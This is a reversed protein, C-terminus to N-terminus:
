TQSRKKAAGTRAAATLADAEEALTTEDTHSRQEFDAIEAKVDESVGRPHFEDNLDDHRRTVLLYTARLAFGTAVLAFTAGSGAGLQLLVDPREVERVRDGREVPEREVVEAVPVGLRDLRAEVVAVRVRLRRREGREFPQERQEMRDHRVHRLLNPRVQRRAPRAQEHRGPRLRQVDLHVGTRDLVRLECCPDVPAAADADVHHAIRLADERSFATPDLCLELWLGDLM